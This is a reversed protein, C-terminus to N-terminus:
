APSGRIRLKWGPSGIAARNSDNSEYFDLFRCVVKWPNSILDLSLLFYFFLLFFSLKFNAALAQLSPHRNSVLRLVGPLLVPSVCFGRTACLLVCVALHFFVWYYENLTTGKVLSYLRKFLSVLKAGLYPYLLSKGLFKFGVWVRALICPILHCM